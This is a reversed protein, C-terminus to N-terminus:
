EDYLLEAVNYTLKHLPRIVMEKWSLGPKSFWINFM